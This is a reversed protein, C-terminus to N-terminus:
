IEAKICLLSSGYQNKIKSIITNVKVNQTPLAFLTPGSGTMGAFCAGHKLLDDKIIQLIPFKKFVAPQLDNRFYKHFFDPQKIFTEIAKESTNDNHIETRNKYAWAASVPFLPNILIIERKPISINLPTLQTGTHTGISFCPNLFFPVDAGLEEALIQLQNKNLKQYKENLLKLVSAANSSGGGLGASIPIHKEIHIEWNPSVKSKKAYNIAARWCINNENLPIDTSNSTIKLPHNNTCKITISDKPANLPLFVTEISNYGNPLKGTVQLYINIKSISHTHM